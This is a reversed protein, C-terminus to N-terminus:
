TRGFVILGLGVFSIALLGALTGGLPLSFVKVTETGSYTRSLTSTPRYMSALVSCGSRLQANTLDILGSGATPSPCVEWMTQDRYSPFARRYEDVIRPCGSSRQGSTLSINPTGAIPQPCPLRVTQDRYIPFVIANSLNWPFDRRVNYNELNSFALLAVVIAAGVLGFGLVKSSLM